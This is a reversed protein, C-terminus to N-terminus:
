AARRRSSELDAEPGAEEGEGLRRGLDVDLAQLAALLVRGAADAAARAPLLDQARAHDIRLDELVDVDVGLLVRAPGEAHADLASAM